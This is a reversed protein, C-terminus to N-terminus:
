FNWVHLRPEGDLSGRRETPFDDGLCQANTVSLSACMGARDQPALPLLAFGVGADKLKRRTANVGEASLRPARLCM